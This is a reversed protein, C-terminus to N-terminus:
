IGEAACVCPAGCEGPVLPEVQGLMQITDTTVTLKAPFHLCLIRFVCFMFLYNTIIFSHHIISSLIYISSFFVGKSIIKDVYSAFSYM